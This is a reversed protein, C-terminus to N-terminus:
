RRRKRGGREGRGEAVREERRGGRLSHDVDHLGRAFKAGIRTRKLKTSWRSGSLGKRKKWITWRPTGTSSDATADM